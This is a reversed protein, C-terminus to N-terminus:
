VFQLLKFKIMVDENLWTKRTEYNCFLKIHRYTNTKNIKKKLINGAFAKNKGESYKINFITLKEVIITFQLKELRFCASWFIVFNCSKQYLKIKAVIKM